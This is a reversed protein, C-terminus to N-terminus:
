VKRQENSAKPFRKIFFTGAERHEAAADHQPLCCLLFRLVISRRDVWLGKGGVSKVSVVVSLHFSPFVSYLGAHWQTGCRVPQDRMSDRICMQVM